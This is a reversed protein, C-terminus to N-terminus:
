VVRMEDAACGSVGEIGVFVVRDAAEARYRFFHVAYQTAAALEGAPPCTAASASEPEIRAVAV